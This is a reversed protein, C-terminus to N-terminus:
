GSASGQWPFYGQTKGSSLHNCLRVLPGVLIHFIYLVWAQDSLEGLLGIQIHIGALFGVLGHLWSLPVYQSSLAYVTAELLKLDWLLGWKVVSM